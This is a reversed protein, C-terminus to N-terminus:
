ADDKSDTFSPLTFRIDAGSEPDDTVSWIRGGHSEIISRSISLGLGMGTDKTTSFPTFMREAIEPPFGPGSDRVSVVVFAPDTSDM